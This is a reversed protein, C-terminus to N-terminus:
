QLVTATLDYRAAPIKIPTRSPAYDPVITRIEEMLARGDRAHCLVTLQQMREHVHTLGGCGQFIRIKEHPTAVTREDELNLEEFLKEGPRMGSFAIEVDVDPRLGSLLILKRALDVIRVQDGMDLVFVEGGRGLTSAQIVLQAAEPITMFYRRMEPHTVMVPGGEAIQKLFIPVVSGNSGLVNGFRVAVYKTASSQQVGSIVLEAIRKTAGMINAPNVAKDSSILVFDRVGAASAAMAVKYTGFVNNEVAEVISAEMMPVHKYAAAHYVASPRHQEM